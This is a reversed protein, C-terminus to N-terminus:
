RSRSWRSPPAARQTPCSWSSTAPICCMRSRPPAPASIATCGPGRWLMSALPLTGTQPTNSGSAADVYGVHAANGSAQLVIGLQWGPRMGAPLTQRALDAAWNSLLDPDDVHGVLGHWGDHAHDYRMLGDRVADTAAAALHSQPAYPRDARGENVTTADFRQTLRARVADGCYGSNAVTRPTGGSQPLLPEATAATAQAQSIVGDDLMRSIVFNRRQLADQPHLFPNYTTPAKPM